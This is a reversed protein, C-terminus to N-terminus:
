ETFLYRTKDKESIEVVHLPWKIQFTPDNWRIGNEHQPSYFQSVQYFVESNDELTQFGHACGEPVYVMKLNKESLEISVWKKFTLSKPRLDIIVDFIKGKTCRVLKIEEFPSDQFHMGRLTGAKKSFSTNCQVLNSNLGQVEFIKKDWTRAFYGRQDENKEIQIIILDEIETKLFKM